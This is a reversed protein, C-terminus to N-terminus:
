RVEREMTIKAKWNNEVVHNVESMNVAWGHMERCAQAIAITRIEQRNDNDHGRIIYEVERYIKRM